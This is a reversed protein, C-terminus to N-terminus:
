PDIAVIFDGTEVDWVFTSWMWSARVITTIEKGSASWGAIVHRSPEDVEQANEVVVAKRLLLEGSQTDWISLTSEPSGVAVFGGCPSWAASQAEVDASELAINSASDPHLTCNKLSEEEQHLFQWGRPTRQQAIVRPEPGAIGSVSSEFWHTQLFNGALDLVVVASSSTFLLEGYEPVMEAHEIFGIIEQLDVHILQKKDNTM